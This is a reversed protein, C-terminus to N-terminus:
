NKSNYDFVPTHRVRHQNYATDNNTVYPRHTTTTMVPSTSESEESKNSRIGLWIAISVLSIAVATLYANFSSLALTNMFLWHLGEIIFWYATGVLFYGSVYRYPTFTIVGLLAVIVALIIYMAVMKIGMM